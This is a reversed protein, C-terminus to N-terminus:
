AASREATAPPRLATTVDLAASEAQALTWRHAADDLLHGDPLEEADLDAVPRRLLGRRPVALRPPTVLGRRRHLEEAVDELTEEGTWAAPDDLALSAAERLTFVIRQSGPALRNVMARQELDMTLVLAADRIRAANLPVSRYRQLQAHEPALDAAVPCAPQGTLAGLGASLVEVDGSLLEARLVAAVFPATCLDADDVVLIRSPNTV